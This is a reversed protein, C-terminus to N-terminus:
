NIDIDLKMPAHDRRKGTDIPGSSIIKNSVSDSVLWFDTRIGNEVKKEINPAWWTADNQGNPKVIYADRLGLDLLSDYQRKLELVAKKSVTSKVTKKGLLISLDGALLVVKKQNLKDIYETLEKMWHAHQRYKHYEYHPIYANVFYHKKFELILLRGESDLDGSDINSKIIRIPNLDRKHLIMTGAYSTKAPSQSARYVINYNPFLETLKKNEKADPGDPRIKVEQLGIIDPNDKIIKQSIERTQLARTTTGFLMSKLSAINWNVLKMESKGKKICYSKICPYQM